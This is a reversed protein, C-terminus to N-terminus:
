KKKYIVRHMWGHVDSGVWINIVEFGKSLLLVELKECKDRPYKYSYGVPAKDKADFRKEIADYWFGFAHNRKDGYANKGEIFFDKNLVLGTVKAIEKATDKESLYDPGKNM